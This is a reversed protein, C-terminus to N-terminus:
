VRCVYDVEGLDITPGRTRNTGGQDVLELGAEDRATAM